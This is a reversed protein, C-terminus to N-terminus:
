PLVLHMEMSTQIMMVLTTWKMLGAAIAKVLDPPARFSM